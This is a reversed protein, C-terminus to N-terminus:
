SGTKLMQHQLVELVVNKNLALFISAFLAIRLVKSFFVTHLRLDRQTTLKEFNTHESLNCFNTKPIISCFADSPRNMTPYISVTKPKLKLGKQQWVFLLLCYIGIQFFQMRDQCPIVRRLNAPLFVDKSAAKCFSATYFKELQLVLHTIWSSGHRVLLTFLFIHHSTYCFIRQCPVTQASTWTRFPSAQVVSEAPFQTTNRYGKSHCIQIARQSRLCTLPISIRLSNRRGQSICHENFFTGAAAAWQQSSPDPRNLRPVTQNQRHTCATGPRQSDERGASLM